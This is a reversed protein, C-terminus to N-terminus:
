LMQQGFAPLAPVASGVADGICGCHDEDADSNDLADEESM